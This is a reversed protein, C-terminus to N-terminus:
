KIISKNSEILVVSVSYQKHAVRKADLSYSHASFFLVTVVFIFLCSILKNFVKKGAVSPCVCAIKGWDKGYYKCVM